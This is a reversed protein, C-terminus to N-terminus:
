ATVINWPLLKEWDGPSSAFPARKFLATLYDRPIVGNLKATEILTFMGCSSEAGGPCQSFMWNKRGLVFPRVANECINNDPTLYPSDLYVILKHWQNLAYSVAKGLLLSFPVEIVQRALWAKFEKLVPVARVKREIYFILNRKGGDGDNGGTNKRLENEIDYLRRIYAIGEAALGGQGSVKAADFFKRRVHAFCGAHVIDPMNRVACDYADYGDTQLFGSYGELFTKAHVGGRTEHYEYWAVQKDPPGGRALWLYSQQTNKRDAERMVLMTTEDMRIVPGSKVTKKLLAFLPELKQYARRQWNAMDQRSVTVGMAAFRKEQRFYPLHDEFKQTVICSLLGASVISKPIIAPEAPATRVAPGDEDGTGECARCAYKPRVTKEVFIRPPIIEPKESTEEGIRTMRAGCACIKENEPIDIIREERPLAPDIPRRGPKRRSHTRVESREEPTDEAPAAAEEETDEFLTPQREDAPMREASRGFRKHLLLEYQEKTELYKYRYEKMERM